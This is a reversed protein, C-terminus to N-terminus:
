FCGEVFWWNGFASESCARKRNPDLGPMSDSTNFESFKVNPVFM